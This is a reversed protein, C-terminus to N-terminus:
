PTPRRVIENSAPSYAGSAASVSDLLRHYTESMDADYTSPNARLHPWALRVAVASHLDPLERVGDIITYRTAGQSAEQTYVTWGKYQSTVPQPGYAKGVVARASRAAEADLDFITIAVNTSDSTGEDAPNPV